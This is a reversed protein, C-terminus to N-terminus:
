SSFLKEGLLFGIGTAASALVLTKWRAPTGKLSSTYIGISKAFEEIFATGILLLLSWPMPLNFFLVLGDDPWSSSRILLINLLVLSRYPHDRSLSAAIFERV